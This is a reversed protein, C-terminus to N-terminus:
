YKALCVDRYLAPYDQVVALRNTLSTVVAQLRQEPSLGGTLQANISTVWGQQTPSGSMGTSLLSCVARAVAQEDSHGKAIQQLASRAANFADPLVSVGFM